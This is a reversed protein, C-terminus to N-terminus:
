GEVAQKRIETPNKHYVKKFERSFYKTDNYGVATAVENVNMTGTELLQLASKMRLTKVFDNVTMGTLTKLKRYLVSVSTGMQFAMDNVGFEPNSLNDFILKKLKLIFVGDVDRVTRHSPELSISTTNKLLERMQIQNQIKLELARLDYPKLLFDDAGLELGEIMDPITSKASLLLFPIHSIEPTNKVRRCVEYGNMGPMMIDCLILNPFETQALALGKLGDNAQLVKYKDSLAESTFTRLEDNDEIILLTPLSADKIAPNPQPIVQDVTYNKDTLINSESTFQSKPFHEQGKKLLVSFCTHGSVGQTDSSSNVTLGGRHQEVIEKSLALGIGYGTENTTPNGVQFFSKFIQAKNEPAIGIGNDIVNIVAEKPQDIVEVMVKGGKPTFKLANSLLNYLVKQIQTQDMWLMMPGAPLSCTLNVEKDAASHEFSAVVSRILPLIDHNGVRLPSSGSQLKRFDLLEDVLSKLRDSNTIALSLYSNVKANDKLNQAAKQLPGNILSLHTRIEHSINTFFDLKAQHLESEKKFSTRIWFFRAITYALLGLLIGYILYAFWTKWWPNLVIIKVSLPNETWHDDGNAAKVLFTYTGAPLNTYTASPIKVYNWNKEFGEMRYAYQNRESRFYSRLAFNLTFINQDHRFELQDVQGIEKNLIGSKDRIEVKKNFLLLSTLSLPASADNTVIANPNFYFLGNTTPFYLMGQNGKLSGSLQLISRHPLGDQQDYEQITKSAPHYRMLKSEGNIWLYGRSDSQLDLVYDLKANESEPLTVIAKKVSDYYQLYEECGFWIRGNLDETIGRVSLFNGQDKPQHIALLRAKNSDHDFVLVQARGGFWLNGKSDELAVYTRQTYGMNIFHGKSKDFRFLGFKGYVWFRGQQDELMGYVNGPSTNKTKQDVLPYWQQAGTKLNYRRLGASGGCWLLDQDDVFFSSYSGPAELRLDVAYTSQDYSRRFIIQDQSDSVMWIRRDKTQGIKPNLFKKKKPHSAEFWDSFHPSLTNMYSIGLYYGGLWLGGQPDLHMAYLVNDALSGPDGAQGVFWESEETHPDFHGLGASTAIWLGGKPDPIIKSIELPLGTPSGFKDIKKFKGTSPNYQVLGHLSGLWIMNTRDVYISWFNSDRGEQEMKFLRSGGKKTVHVLGDYTGLWLDQDLGEAICRIEKSMGDLNKSPYQTFKLHSGDKDIINLGENTGVLIRNQADEAICNIRNSNISNRNSPDQIFTQFSDSIPDYLSLGFRTGVWLNGKTDCYVNEIYDSPLSQSKEPHQGYKKFVRSDYQYLGRSTAFWM